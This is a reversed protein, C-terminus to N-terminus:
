VRLWPKFYVPFLFSVNGSIREQLLDTYEQVFWGVLLYSKRDDRVWCFLDGGLFPHDFLSYFWIWLCKQCMLFYSRLWIFVLVLFLFVLVSDLPFFFCFLWHLYNGSGSPIQQLLWSPINAEIGVCNFQSQFTCKCPYRPPFELKM